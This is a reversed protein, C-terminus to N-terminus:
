VGCAALALRRSRERVDFRHEPRHLSRRRAFRALHRNRAAVREDARRRARRFVRQAGQTWGVVRELALSAGVDADACASLSSDRAVRSARVKISLFYGSARRLANAMPVLYPASKTGVLRWEEYELPQRVDVVVGRRKGRVIAAVDEATAERARGAGRALYAHIEGWRPSGPGKGPTVADREAVASSKSSFGFARAIARGRRAVDTGSTRARARARARAGDGRGTTAVGSARASRVRM